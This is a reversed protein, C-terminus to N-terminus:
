KYAQIKYYDDLVSNMIENFYHQGISDGEKLEEIKWQKPNAALWWYNISPENQPQILKEMLTVIDPYKTINTLTKMPLTAQTKDINWEGVHQWEVRRCNKHKERTEDYYVDSVVVGQGIIKHMGKKVYVIDGERMGSIFDWCSRTDNTANSKGYVEQIKDKIANSSKYQRFDGLDDWGM